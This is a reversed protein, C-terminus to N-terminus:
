TPRRPHPQDTHPYLSPVVAFSMATPDALANHLRKWKTVGGPMTDQANRIGREAASSPTRYVIVVLLAM